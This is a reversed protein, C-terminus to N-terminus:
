KCLICYFCLLFMGNRKM